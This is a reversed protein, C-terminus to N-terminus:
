LLSKLDQKYFANTTLRALMRGAASPSHNGNSLSTLPVLPVALDIGIVSYEACDRKVFSM